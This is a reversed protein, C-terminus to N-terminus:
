DCVILNVLSNSRVRVRESVAVLNVNDVDNIRNYYTIAEEWDNDQQYTLGMNYIAGM